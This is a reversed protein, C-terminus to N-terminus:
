IVVWGQPEIQGRRLHIIGTEERAGCSIGILLTIKKLVYSLYNKKHLIRSYSIESPILYLTKLMVLSGM